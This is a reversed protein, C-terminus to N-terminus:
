RTDKRSLLLGTSPYQRWGVPWVAESRFESAIEYNGSLTALFRERNFFWVPYSAPYIQPPVRQVAIRDPLAEHLPVNNLLIWPWGRTMWNTLMAHPAELYQLSTSALLVDHPGFEGAADLTEFFRLPGDQCNARGARVFGPQEVIDWSLEGLNSLEARHRWYTTGLAGGFDLVRLRGGSTEAIKRLAALVDPEPSPTPFLVGDREYAFSGAKVMKTAALVRDVIVTDDYGRCAKRAAAWSTYDGVFWKWGFRGRVRARLPSPILAKGLFKAWNNMPSTTLVMAGAAEGM